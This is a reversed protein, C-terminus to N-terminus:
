LISLAVGDEQFFITEKGHKWVQQSDFRLFIERRGTKKSGLKWHEKAWHQLDEGRLGTTWPTTAEPSISNGFSINCTMM